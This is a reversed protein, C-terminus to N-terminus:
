DAPFAKKAARGVIATLSADVTAGVGAGALPIGKSITVISRKTGYKALLMFGARRNIARVLAIPIAQVAKKSAVTGLKVGAAAAAKQANSGVLSLMLMAQTHPDKLDYGRLYAIAGVMRANIVVAGAINAPLAVLFTTFGGLGTVFGATGAAATSERIIRAIAKEADLGGPQFPPDSNEGDDTQRPTTRLRAHAYDISGTIPGVGDFVVRNVLQKLNRAIAGSEDPHQADADDKPIEESM